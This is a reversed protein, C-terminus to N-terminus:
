VCDSYLLGPWAVFWDGWPDRIATVFQNGNVAVNSLNYVTVAYGLRYMRPRSLYRGPNGSTAHELAYVQCDASGPRDGEEGVATGTGTGQTDNYRTGTGTYRPAVSDWMAPIGGVPTLVVIGWPGDGRDRPPPPPTRPPPRLPGGPPVGGRALWEAAMAQLVATLEDDLLNGALAPNVAPM